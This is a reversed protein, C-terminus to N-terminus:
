PALKKNNDNKPPTKTVGKKFLMDGKNARVYETLATDAAQMQDILVSRQVDQDLDFGHKSAHAKGLTKLELSLLSGQGRVFSSHWNKQLLDVAFAAGHVGGLRSAVQRMDRDILTRYLLVEKRDQILAVPRLYDDSHMLATEVLTQTEESLFGAQKNQGFLEQWQAIKEFYTMEVYPKEARSEQYLLVEKEAQIIEVKQCTQGHALVINRAESAIESATLKELGDTGLAKLRKLCGHLGASTDAFCNGTLQNLSKLNAVDTLVDLDAGAQALAFFGFSEAFLIAEHASYAAFGYKLDILRAAIAVDELLEVYAPLKGACISSDLLAESASVGTLKEQGGLLFSRGGGNIMGLRLSDTESLKLRHFRSIGQVPKSLFDTIKLLPDRISTRLDMSLPRLLEQHLSLSTVEDLIPTESHGYTPAAFTGSWGSIDWLVAQEQCKIGLLSVIWDFRAKGTLKAINM